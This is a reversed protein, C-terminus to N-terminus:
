GFRTVQMVYYIIEQNFKIQTLICRGTAPTLQRQGFIYWHISFCIEAIEIIVLFRPQRKQCFIRVQYCAHPFKLNQIKFQPNTPDSQETM